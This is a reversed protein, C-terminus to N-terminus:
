PLRRKFLANAQITLFCEWGEAGLKNAEQVFDGTNRIYVTTYEWREGKTKSATQAAAEQCSVVSLAILLATIFCIAKKTIKNM